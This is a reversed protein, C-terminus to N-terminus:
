SRRTLVRDLSLAGSGRLVVVAALAVALLHFEFGETGAPLTGAWNMFFGNQVHQTLAAVVMVTGVALAALRGGLGLLLALGGVSESLIAALALVWPIGLTETFASLTAGLGYGGFWGFVKQLGHPLIMAGLALRAITASPDAETTWLLALPRAGPRDSRFIAFSKLASTATTTNM